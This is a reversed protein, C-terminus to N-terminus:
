PNEGMWEAEEMKILCESLNMWVYGDFASNIPQKVKFLTETGDNSKRLMAQTAFFDRKVSNVMDNTIDVTPVIVYAIGDEFYAM